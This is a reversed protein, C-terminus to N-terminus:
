TFFGRRRTVPSYLMMVMDALNPSKAGNPKKDVLVKGANNLGYTPQSLENILRQLCPLDSPISILDDADFQEGETVARHTREFRVRLEWWGQAKRNAFFDENTRELTDRVAKTASPIMATPDIVEGSGRFTTLKVERVGKAKRAENLKRVDGRVGAGLGDGDYILSELGDRDHYGVAKESTGFIDDGKGSWEDASRLVFGHRHGYANKDAGEDAVDLAGFRAGTPKIGLKVHADIASQVWSAPVIIGEQSANYNRDIEQAVVVPPLFAIQDAYWQDDKRPDDRWDFVFIREADWSHRKEAFPNGMGNVSSLDIRCNTTASLSAEVLMPRELHAAEDVFYISTRDGRGIGDGAEGTLVSDTDPMMIRMHPAHRRENYGARFERPLHRMFFRAKWFLSKPSDLKDVYEEKRSGFGAVFGTNLVALGCGVGVVIWSLGVDRAKEILGPKNAKWCDATIFEICERQRPFLVFPISAPRGMALARPDFTMGWDNVFDALNERYHVRFAALLGADNRLRHLVELRRALVPVYDPNKYDFAFGPKPFASVPSHEM